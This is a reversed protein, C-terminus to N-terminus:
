LRRVPLRLSLASGDSFRLTLGVLEGPRPQRKLARLMIHGKGPALTLSGGAPVPLRGAARMDERGGADRGSLMFTAEGALPCSAGVLTVGSPGPNSLTVYAALEEAGPPAAAIWGSRLNLARVAPGAKRGLVVGIQAAPMPMTHEAGAGAAVLALGLTLLAARMM